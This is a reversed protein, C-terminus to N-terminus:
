RGLARARDRRRASQRLREERVRRLCRRRPTGVRVPSEIVSLGKEIASLCLGICVIADSTTPNPEAHNGAPYSRHGPPRPPRPHQNSGDANMLYITRNALTNDAIRVYAITTGDPSWATGFERDSDTTIRTPNSGDANMTYIDGNGTADDEYAIKSGDPSWDPIQDHNADDFTLQTQETGDANM